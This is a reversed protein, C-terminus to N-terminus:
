EDTADERSFDMQRSASSGWGLISNREKLDVNPPLAEYPRLDPTAQFMNFMPTAAADFQLSAVTAPM